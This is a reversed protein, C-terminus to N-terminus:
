SSTTKANLSESYECMTRIGKIEPYRTQNCFSLSAPANSGAARIAATGMTTPHPASTPYQTACPEPHCRGGSSKSASVVRENTDNTAAAHASNRPRSVRAATAKGSAKKSNM